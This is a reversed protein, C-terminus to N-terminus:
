QPDLEWEVAWLELEEDRKWLAILPYGPNIAAMKVGQPGPISQAENTQLDFILLDSSSLNFCSLTRMDEGLQLSTTSGLTMEGFEKDAKTACNMTRVVTKKGVDMLGVVQPGRMLYARMGTLVLREVTVSKGVDWYLTHGSKDISGLIGDFVCLDQIEIYQKKLDFLTSLGPLTLLRILSDDYGVAVQTSDSNARLATVMSMHLTDENVLDGTDTAFSLLRGSTTAIILHSGSNTILAQSMKDLKLHPKISFEFCTKLDEIDFVFTYLMVSIALLFTGSESFSLHALPSHMLRKALFCRSAKTRKMRRSLHVWCEMLAQCETM